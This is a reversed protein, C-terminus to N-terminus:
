LGQGAAVGLGITQGQLVTKSAPVGLDRLHGLAAEAVAYFSEESPEGTAKGYGPYEVALVGLGLAHFREFLPTRDALQEANGHFHVLTPAGAPAPYHLALSRWGAGSLEVVGADTRPELAVEPAPFILRDQYIFAFLCLALYGVGFAM